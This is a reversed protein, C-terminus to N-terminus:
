AGRGAAAGAVVAPGGSSARTGFRWSDGAAVAGLVPWRVLLVRGADTRHAACGNWM